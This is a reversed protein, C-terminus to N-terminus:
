LFSSIPRKIKLWKGAIANLSGDGKAKELVANVRELLGPEGKNVGIFCPANKIMFKFDLKRERQQESITGAVINGTAVLAVQGTLFAAITAHNDDYRKIVATAPAMGTLVGDEVAGRTVGITKGALDAANGVALKVDGFVGSFLPAYAHSFDILKEREATKGLSSILLDVKRGTLLSIRDASAAPVLELSVGLDKALLRAVDIDYGVPKMDPGPSGFPPFDLPVAVRLVKAKLIDDLTAARSPPALLVACYFLSSLVIRRKM